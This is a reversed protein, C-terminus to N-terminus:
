NTCKNANCRNVGGRPTIEGCKISLKFSSASFGKYIPQDFNVLNDAAKLNYLRLVASLKTFKSWGFDLSKETDDKLSEILHSRDMFYEEVDHIMNELKDGESCTTRVPHCGRKLFGGVQRLSSAAPSVVLVVLVVLLLSFCDVCYKVLNPLTGVDEPCPLSIKNIWCDICVLVSSFKLLIKPICYM